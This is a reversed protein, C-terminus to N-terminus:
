INKAWFVWQGGLPLWGLASELPQLRRLVGPFFTVFRYGTKNSGAVEKWLGRMESVSLLVADRDFICAKVTRQTLPNWPNHEWIVMVGGPKLAKWLVQLTTRRQTPQIHHLVCAALIFDYQEISRNWSDLSLFLPDKATRSSPGKGTTSVSMAAKISDQSPDIGVYDWSQDFYNHFAHGLRGTGCGYDLFTKASTTAGFHKAVFKACWSLKAHLFEQSEAGLSALNENHLREYDRAYTDFADTMKLV